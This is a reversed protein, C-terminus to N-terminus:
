KIFRSYVREHRIVEQEISYNTKVHEAIEKGVNHREVSDLGTAHVLKQKLEEINGAEFLLHQFDSLQDKIGPINSGLVYLGMSM